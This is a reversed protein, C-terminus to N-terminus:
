RRSPKLQWYQPRRRGEPPRVKSWTTGRERPPSDLQSFTTAAQEGQLRRLALRVGWSASMGSGGLRAPRGAVLQVVPLGLEVVALVVM